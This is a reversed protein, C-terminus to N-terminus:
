TNYRFIGYFYCDISYGYIIIVKIAKPRMSPLKSKGGALILSTEGARIPYCVKM